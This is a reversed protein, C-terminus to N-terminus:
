REDQKKAVYESFNVRRVISRCPIPCTVRSAPLPGRYVLVLLARRERRRRYARPDPLQEPFPFDTM